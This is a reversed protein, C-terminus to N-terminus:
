RDRYMEGLKVKIHTYHDTNQRLVQMGREQKREKEKETETETEKEKKREKGSTVVLPQRMITDNFINNAATAYEM